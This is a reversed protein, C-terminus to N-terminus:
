IVLYDLRGTELLAYGTQLAAQPLVDHRRQAGLLVGAPAMAPQEHAPHEGRAADRHIVNPAVATQLRLRFQGGGLRV